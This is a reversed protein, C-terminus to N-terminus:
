WVWFLLLSLTITSSQVAALWSCYQPIYLKELFLSAIMFSDM